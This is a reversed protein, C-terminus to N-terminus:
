LATLSSEVDLVYSHQVLVAACRCITLSPRRGDLRGKTSEDERYKLKKRQLNASHHLCGGLQDSAVRTFPVPSRKIYRM